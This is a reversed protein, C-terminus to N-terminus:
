VYRYMKPPFIVSGSSLNGIIQRAGSKMFSYCFHTLNARVRYVYTDPSGLAAGHCLTRISKHERSSLFNYVSERLKMAWECSGAAPKQGSAPSELAHAGGWDIYKLEM